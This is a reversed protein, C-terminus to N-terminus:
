PFVVVQYSIIPSFLNIIIISIIIAMYSILASLINSRSNM